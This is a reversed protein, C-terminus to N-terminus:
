IYNGSIFATYTVHPPPDNFRAFFLTKVHSGTSQNRDLRKRIHFFDGLNNAFMTQMDFLVFAIM